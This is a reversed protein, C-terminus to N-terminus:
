VAFRLGLVLPPVARAARISGRGAATARPVPVIARRRPTVTGVAILPQVGTLVWAAMIAVSCGGEQGVQVRPVGVVGPNRERVKSGGLRGVGSSATSRVDDSPGSSCSGAPRLSSMGSATECSRWEWRSPTGRSLSRCRPAYVGLGGGGGLSHPKTGM